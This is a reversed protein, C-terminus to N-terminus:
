KEREGQNIGIVKGIVIRTLKNIRMASLKSPAAISIIKGILKIKKRLSGSVSKKRVFHNRFNPLPNSFNLVSISLVM